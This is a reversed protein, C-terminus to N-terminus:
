AASSAREYLDCVAGYCHEPTFREQIVARHNSPRAVGLDDVLQAMASALGRADGVPATWCHSLGSSGIDSMGPAITTAFPLGCSMAELIVIPWGAEYTSSMVVGDLATYFYRPEDQYPVKKIRNSVGLELGLAKLDQELAGEGVHLLVLSPDNHAVEAFARYLTAPDKQHTLRGLSGLVVAHEAVGLRRRALAREERTPPIFLDPHTPNHIIRQLPPKVGVAERAFAAEDASINITAALPAFVKEVANFFTTAVSKTQGMGYYAHATYFTPVAFLRGVARGLVGAKSSHAHIVDPRWKRIVDALRALARADGLCPANGVCMDVVPEGASRVESVLVDLAASGRKSSYALGVAHGRGRVFRALGEVHRFVGDVGPEFIQLCRM